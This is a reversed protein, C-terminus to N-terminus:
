NCPVHYCPNHRATNDGGTTGKFDAYAGYNANNNFTSHKVTATLNQDPDNNVIDIGDDATGNARSRTVTVHRMSDLYFGEEFGPGRAVDQKYLDHAGYLGYFAYASGVPRGKLVKNEVIRDDDEDYTDIGFTTHVIKNDEFANDSGFSLYIGDNANRITNGTVSAGTVYEGFVGEYGQTGGLKLDLNRVVPNANSNLDDGDLYVDYAFRKITGDVVRTRNKDTYVGDYNSGDGIIAHDNLDVTTNGKGVILGDTGSASCDLNAHLTVDHTVTQGCTLAQAASPMSLLAAGLIGLLVLQGRRSRRM